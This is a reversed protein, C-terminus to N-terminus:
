QQEHEQLPKSRFVVLMGLMYMCCFLGGLTVSVMMWKGMNIYFGLFALTGFTFGVWQMTSVGTVDRSDYTMRVQALYSLNFTFAAIAAMVEWFMDM